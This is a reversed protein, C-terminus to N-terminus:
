AQLVNVFCHVHPLVRYNWVFGPGELRWFHWPENEKGGKDRYFALNLKEMGGTKRVIQMVEDGDEKRYPSLLERMVSEVLTRQDASLDAYGIGPRTAEKPRFKVSGAQEGPSGDVIARKRQGEDLADFVSLVSKTQFNFVNRENYGQVSHGYYMPGGFAAGPESNGDCRVTLHHGAFVWAFKQSDAPDGFLAVGCNELSGSNDFSGRRTIREYGADDSCIARLTRGILEIQPKTYVDVIKKGIPGNYMGLRTALGKEAGHDWALIGKRQDDSLSAYLEKILSEAPKAEPKKSDEARLSRSALSSLAVAGGVARMFGRRPLMEAPNECEPCNPKVDDRM